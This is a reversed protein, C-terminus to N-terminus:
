GSKEATPEQTAVKEQQLKSWALEHCLRYVTEVLPAGAPLAKVMSLIPSAKEREEKTLVTRVDIDLNGLRGKPDSAPDMGLRTCLEDYPVPLLAPPPGEATRPPPTTPELEDWDSLDVGGTGTPLDTAKDSILLCAGCDCSEKSVLDEVNAVTGCVTHYYRLGRKCAKDLGETTRPLHLIRRM